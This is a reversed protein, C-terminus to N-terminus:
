YSIYADRGLRRLEDVFQHLLEAGGTVISVPCVVYIKGM